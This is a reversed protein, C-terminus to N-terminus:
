LVGLREGCSECIMRGSQRRMPAGFVLGLLATFCNKATTSEKGIRDSGCAPCLTIETKVSPEASEMVPEQLDKLMEQAQSLQGVRVQVRVVMATAMPNITALTTWNSEGM